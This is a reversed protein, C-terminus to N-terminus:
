PGGWHSIEISVLAELFAEQLGWAEEPELTIAEFEGTEPTPKRQGSAVQARPVPSTARPIEISEGYLLKWCLRWAGGLALAFLSSGVLVKFPPFGSKWFPVVSPAPTPLRLELAQLSHLSTHSCGSLSAVGEHACNCVQQGTALGGATRNIVVLGDEGM